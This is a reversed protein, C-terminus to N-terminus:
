NFGFMLIKNKILEQKDGYGTLEEGRVDQEAEDIEVSLCDIVFKSLMPNSGASRTMCEAKDILDFM